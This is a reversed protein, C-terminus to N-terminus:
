SAIVALAETVAGGAFLVALKATNVRLDFVREVKCRAAAGLRERLGGDSLVTVIADAVAEPDGPEVLIGDIGDEILEPIGSIRTSVVPLGSAMAEVLVNPIGDRDGNEMVM